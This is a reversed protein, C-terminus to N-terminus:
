KQTGEYRTCAYIGSAVDALIQDSLDLLQIIRPDSLNYHVYRGRQEKVVLGCDLLCSLHNSTNSQSLATAETIESVTATGNALFMLISLRSPDSFGRFLKARLQDTQVEPNLLM